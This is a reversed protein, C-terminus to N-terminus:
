AHGVQGHNNQSLYSHCNREPANRQKQKRGTKQFPETEAVTIMRAVHAPDHKDLKAPDPTPAGKQEGESGPILVTQFDSREVLDNIIGTLGMTRGHEPDYIREIGYGELEKIEEPRIVGGGGAFIRIHSAGREKLMDRMYRFFENHGGQYRICVDFKDSFLDVMKGKGEDGWQAGVIVSVAM